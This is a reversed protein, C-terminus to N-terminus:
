GEGEDTFHLYLYSGQFSAILVWHSAQSTSSARSIFICFLLTFIVVLCSSVETGAVELERPSNHSKDRKRM